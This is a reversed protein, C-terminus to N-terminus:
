LAHRTVYTAKVTPHTARSFDGIALSTAHLNLTCEGGVLSDPQSPAISEGGVPARLTIAGPRKATRELFCIM